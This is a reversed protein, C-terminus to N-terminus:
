KNIKKITEEVDTLVLDLSTKDRTPRDLVQVLFNDDITELLRRSLKCSSM